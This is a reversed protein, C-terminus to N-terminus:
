KKSVKKAKRKRMATQLNDSGVSSISNRDGKEGVEDDRHKEINRTDENSNIGESVITSSQEANIAIAPIAINGSDETHNHRNESPSHRTPRGVTQDLNRGRSMDTSQNVDNTKKTSSKHDRPYTANEEGYGNDYDRIVHDADYYITRKRSGGDRTSTESYSPETYHSIERRNSRNLHPSNLTRMDGTM